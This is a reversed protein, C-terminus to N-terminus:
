RNASFNGKWKKFICLNWLAYDLKFRYTVINIYEKLFPELLSCYRGYPRLISVNQIKFHGVASEQINSDFIKIFEDRDPRVHEHALGIAHGIEHLAHGMRCNGDLSLPQGGTGCLGPVQGLYSWCGADKVFHLYEDCMTCCADSANKDLSCSKFNLETAERWLNLAENVMTTNVSEDIHYCIHGQKWIPPVVTETQLQRQTACLNGFVHGDCVVHCGFVLHCKTQITIPIEFTTCIDHQTGLCTAHCGNLSCEQAFAVTSSFLFLISRFALM